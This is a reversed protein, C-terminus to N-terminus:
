GINKELMEITKKLGSLFEKQEEDKCSEVYRFIKEKKDKHPNFTVITNLINYDDINDDLVMDITKDRTLLRGVARNLEAYERPEVFDKEKIKLWCKISLM